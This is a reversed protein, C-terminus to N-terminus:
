STDDPPRSFLLRPLPFSSLTGLGCSPCRAVDVGTLRELLARWDEPLDPPANANAGLLVAAVLGVAISFGAHTAELLRRAVELKTTANGSALLGYHRIKVFGAPLVHQLFRHIFDDPALTLTADGKTRFLVGDDTLSLLRQNSIGVKHTYRGMYEFVQEPGAFPEKAYAVWKTQYLKDKLRAFARPNALEACAGSLDLRGAHYAGSLAAVLKGRFLKGLVEVPFLFDQNPANVWRTGDRHLGGGTVICHIHAHFKLDRTWTHLVLTAGLQAGLRKPDAGLTLLTQSAAAFLLNFFLERNRLAVGNLLDDPVTFVVHFYDTPLLRQMRGEIWRAQSLNQCTPCHRNRCSNFVVEEYECNDCVDLRGGLVPTRCAEIARMAKRQPESLVHRKRYAEGHARFIDGLALRPREEGTPSPHSGELHQM